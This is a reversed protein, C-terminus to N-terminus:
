CALDDQRAYSILSASTVQGLGKFGTWRKKQIICPVPGVVDHLVVVAARALCVLPRVSLRYEVYFNNMTTVVFLTTRFLSLFVGKKGREDRARARTRRQTGFSLM